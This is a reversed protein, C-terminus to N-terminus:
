EQSGARLPGRQNQKAATATNAITTLPLVTGTISSPSTPSANSQTLLPRRLYRQRCLGTKGM